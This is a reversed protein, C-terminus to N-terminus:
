YNLTPSMRQECMNGHRWLERADLWQVKSRRTDVDTWLLYSPYHPPYKIFISLAGLINTAINNWCWLGAQTLKTYTLFNRKRKPFKHDESPHCHQWAMHNHPHFKLPITFISKWVYLSTDRWFILRKLNWRTIYNM